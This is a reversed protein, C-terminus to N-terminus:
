AINGAHEPASGFRVGRRTLFVNERTSDQRVFEFVAEGAESRSLFVKEIGNGIVRGTDHGLNSVWLWWPISENKTIEVWRPQTPISQEDFLSSIINWMRKKGMRDTQPVAQSHDLTWIGSAGPELWQQHAHETAGRVGTPTQLMRSFYQPTADNKAHKGPHFRWYSGDALHACFDVRPRVGRNADCTNEIRDATFRVVDAHFSTTGQHQLALWCNWQPWIQTLDTSKPGDSNALENLWQRAEARLQHKKENTNSTAALRPLEARSLIVPTAAEAPLADAAPLPVPRLPLPPPLPLVGAIPPDTAPPPPPVQKGQTPALSASSAPEGGPIRPAMAAVDSPM